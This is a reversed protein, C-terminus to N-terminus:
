ARFVLPATRAGVATMEKSAKLAMLVKSDRHETPGKSVKLATQVKLEKLVKHATQVKLEKLVRFVRHEVHVKSARHEEHERSALLDSHALRDRQDPQM